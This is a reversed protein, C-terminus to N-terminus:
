RAITIEKEKHRAARGIAFEAVDRAFKDVQECTYDFNVVPLQTNWPMNFEHYVARVQDHYVEDATRQVNELVTELPPCCLVIVAGRLTLWDELWRRDLDTLASGDRFLAGYVDESWHLRDIVIPRDDPLINGMWYDLPRNAPKPVSNHVYRAGTCKVIARALTTKGTGDAGELVIIM